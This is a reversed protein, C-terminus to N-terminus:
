HKGCSPDFEQAVNDRCLPNLLVWNIYRQFTAPANCLGQPMVVWEFMGFPTKFATKYIDAEHMAIQYYANPLDFKGWVKGTAAARLIDDQHPLPTHDKVTNTNLARYDHIVRPMANPDSKAIM